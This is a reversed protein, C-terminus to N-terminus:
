KKLIYAERVVDGDSLGIEKITNDEVTFEIEFRGKLTIYTLHYTGGVPIHLRFYSNGPTYEIGIGGILLIDNSKAFLQEGSGTAGDESFVTVIGFSRPNSTNTIRGPYITAKQVDDGTSLGIHLVANKDAQFVIYFQGIQTVYQLLYEGAPVQILFYEHGKYVGFGQEKTEGAYFNSHSTVDGPITPSSFSTNQENNCGSLVFLLLLVIGYASTNKRQRKM